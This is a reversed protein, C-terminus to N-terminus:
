PYVWKFSADKVDETVGVEDWRGKEHWGELGEKMEAIVQLM